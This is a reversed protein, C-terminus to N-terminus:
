AMRGVCAGNMDSTPTLSPPIVVQSKEQLSASRRGKKEPGVRPGRWEVRPAVCVVRAGRFEKGLNPCRCDSPCRACVLCRGLKACGCASCGGCCGCVLGGRGARAAAKEALINALKM